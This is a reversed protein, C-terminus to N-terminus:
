LHTYTYVCPYECIRMAREIPICIYVCAQVCVCIYIYIYIHTYTYTYIYVYIHTYTHTCIYIHRNAFVKRGVATRQVLDPAGWRCLPVGMPTESCSLQVLDLLTERHGQACRHAVKHPGNHTSKEGRDKEAGARTGTQTGTM